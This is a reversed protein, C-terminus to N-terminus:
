VNTLKILQPLGQTISIHKTFKQFHFINGDNMIIPVEETKNQKTKKVNVEVGWWTLCGTALKVSATDTLNLGPVNMLIVAFDPHCGIDTPSSCPATLGEYTLVCFTNLGGQRMPVTAQGRGM